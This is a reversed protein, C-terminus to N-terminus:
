RELRCYVVSPAHRNRCVTCRAPRMPTLARLESEPSYHFLFLRKLDLGQWHIHWRLALYEVRLKDRRVPSRRVWGRPRAKTLSLADADVSFETVGRQRRQADAHVAIRVLMVHEAHTDSDLITRFHIQREGMVAAVIEIPQPFHATVHRGHM